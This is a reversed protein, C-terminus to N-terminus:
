EGRELERGKRLAALALRMPRESDLKGADLESRDWQTFGNAVHDAFVIDRATFVDPDPRMEAVIARAEDYNAQSTWCVGNPMPVPQLPGPNAKDYEDSMRRCLAEMRDLMEMATKM